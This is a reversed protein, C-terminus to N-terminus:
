SSAGAAAAPTGCCGVRGGVQQLKTRNAPDLLQQLNCFKAANWYEPVGTKCDQFYRQWGADALCPSLSAALTTLASDLLSVPLLPPPALPPPLM